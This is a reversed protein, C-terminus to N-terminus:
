LVFGNQLMMPPFIECGLEKAFYSIGKQAAQSQLSYALPENMAVNHEIHKDAEMIVLGAVNGNAIIKGLAQYNPTVRIQWGRNKIARMAKKWIVTKGPMGYDYDDGCVLIVRKNGLETNIPSLLHAMAGDISSGLWFFDRIRKILKKM